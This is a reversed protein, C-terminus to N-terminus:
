PGTLSGLMGGFESRIKLIQEPTMVLDLHVDPGDSAVDLKTFYQKATTMQSGGMSALQKAQDASDVRMRLDLGIADTFNLSGYVAHPKVVAAFKDFVHSNGNALAWVSNTTNIRSYMDIFAASKALPSGGKALELVGDKTGREGLAGILTNDDLFTFAVAEGPKTGTMTVVDGDRTVKTHEKALETKIKALCPGLMKTKDLGHIVFVSEPTPTTVHKLGVSISTIAVLPDFGCAADISMLKPSAKHVLPAMYQKWLASHQMQSVNIGAVIESDVPLLQLDANSAPNSGGVIAALPVPSAPQPPPQDEAVKPPPKPEDKPPDKQDAHKSPDDQKAPADDKKCGVGFSVVALAIVLTRTAVM